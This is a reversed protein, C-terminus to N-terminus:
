ALELPFSCVVDYLIRITFAAYGTGAAPNHIGMHFYAVNNPASSTGVTAFDDEALLQMKPVGFIRELPIKFTRVVSEGTTPLSIRWANRQATVQEINSGLANDISAVCWVSLPFGALNQVTLEVTAAVVRKRYWIASLQTWGLATSGSGSYDPDYISNLRYVQNASMAGAAATLAGVNSYSITGRHRAPFFTPVKQFGVLQASKTSRRRRNKNMEKAPM